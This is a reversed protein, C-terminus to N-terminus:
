FETRAMCCECAIYPVIAKRKGLGICVVQNSLRHVTPPVFTGRERRTVAYAAHGAISGGFAIKLLMSLWVTKSLEKIDYFLHLRNLSLYSSSCSISTAM